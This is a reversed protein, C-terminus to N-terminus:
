NSDLSMNWYKCYSRFKQRMEYNLNGEAYVMKAMKMILGHDKVRSMDLYDIFCQEPTTFKYGDIIITKKAKDIEDECHVDINGVNIYPKIVKEGRVMVEIKDVDFTKSLRNFIDESVTIDIDSTKDKVKYKLLAGGHSLLIDKPDIENDIAFSALEKIMDDYNLM